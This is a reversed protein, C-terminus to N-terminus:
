RAESESRMISPTFGYKAQARELAKSRLTRAAKWGREYAEWLKADAHQVYRPDPSKGAAGDQWGNRFSHYLNAAITESPTPIGAM